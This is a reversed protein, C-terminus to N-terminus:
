LWGLVSTIFEIDLMGYVPEDQRLADTYQKWADNMRMCQQGASMPPLQRVAIRMRHLADGGYHESSLDSMAPMESMYARSLGAAISEIEFFDRLQVNLQVNKFQQKWFEVTNLYDAVINRSDKDFYAILLQM